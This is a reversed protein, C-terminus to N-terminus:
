PPVAQPGSPRYVLIAAGEADRARAAVYLRDLGADYLGTRAGPRTDVRGAPEYAAGTRAFVDVAGEGCVVYIRKRADDFFVDDADGCTALQQRVKGSAADFLMLRAPARYVVAALDGAGDLALPFNFQPGPNRWRAVERSRPLDLVAIARAGPLNVLARDGRAQFGEPHAGLPVSGVLARSAPDV